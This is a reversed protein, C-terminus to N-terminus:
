PEPAVRLAEVILGQRLLSLAARNWHFITVFGCAARPGISARGSAFYNTWWDRATETVSAEYSELLAAEEEEFSARTDNTENWISRIDSAVSGANLLSRSEDPLSRGTNAAVARWVGRDEWGDIDLARLIPRLMQLSVIWTPTRARTEARGHLELWAISDATFLRHVYPMSEKGGFLYAEPEYVGHAIRSAMGRAVWDDIAGLVAERLQDYRGPNAEFRLRLGPPKHMFFFNTAVSGALLDGAVARLERYLQAARDPRLAVGVQVWRSEDCPTIAALGAGIFTDREEVRTPDIPTRGALTDACWRLYEIMRPDGVGTSTISGDANPEYPANTAPLLQSSAILRSPDKVVSREIAGAIAISAAKPWSSSGASSGLPDTRQTINVPSAVQVLRWRPKLSPRGTGCCELGQLARAGGRLLNILRRPWCEHAHGV